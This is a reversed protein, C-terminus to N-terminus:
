LGAQASRRFHWDLLWRNVWNTAGNVILSLIAIVIIATMVRTMSFDSQALRLYDGLGDSSLIIESVVTLPATSTSRALSPRGSVARRCGSLTLPVWRAWVFARRTVMSFM